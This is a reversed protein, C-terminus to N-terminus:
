ARQRSSSTLLHCSASVHPISHPPASSIGCTVVSGYLLTASYSSKESGFKDGHHTVNKAMIDLVESGLKGVARLIPFVPLNRHAHARQSVKAREPLICVYQADPSASPGGDEVEGVVHLVYEGVIEIQRRSRPPGRRWPMHKNGGITERRIGVAPVMEDHLVHVPPLYAVRVVGEIADETGTGDFVKSAPL